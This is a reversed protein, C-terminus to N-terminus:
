IIIPYHRLQALVEILYRSIPAVPLSVLTLPLRLFPQRIAFPRLYVVEHLVYSQSITQLSGPAKYIVSNWQNTLVVWAPQTTKFSICLPNGVPWVEWALRPFCRAAGPPFRRGLGSAPRCLNHIRFTTRIGVYLENTTQFMLEIKGNKPFTKMGISKWLQESPNFGGVLYSDCVMLIYAISAVKTSQIAKTHETKQCARPTHCIQWDDHDAGRNSCTQIDFWKHKTGQQTSGLFRCSLHPSARM